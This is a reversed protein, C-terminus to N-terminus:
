TLRLGGLVSSAVRTAGLSCFILDFSGYIIPFLISTSAFLVLIYISDFTLLWGTLWLGGGTLYSLVWYDWSDWFTYISFYSLGLCSYWLTEPSSYTFNFLLISLLLIGIEIRCFGAEAFYSSRSFFSISITFVSIFLWSNLYTM